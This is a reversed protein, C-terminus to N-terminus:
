KSLGRDEFEGELGRKYGEAIVDVAGTKKM